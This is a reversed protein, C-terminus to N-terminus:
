DWALHLKGTLYTLWLAFSSADIHVLHQSVVDLHVNVGKRRQVDPTLRFHAGFGGAPNDLVDAPPQLCSLLACLFCKVQRSKGLDPSQVGCTDMFLICLKLCKALLVIMKCGETRRCDEVPKLGRFPCPPSAGNLVSDQSQLRICAM